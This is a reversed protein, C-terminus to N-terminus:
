IHTYVQIIKEISRIQERRREIRCAERPVVARTKVSGDATVVTAVPVPVLYWYPVATHGPLYFFKCVTYKKQTVISTLDLVVTACQACSYLISYGEVKKFWEFRKM